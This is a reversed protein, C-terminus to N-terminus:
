RPSPEESRAAGTTEVVTEDGSGHVKGIPRAPTGAVVTRDPVPGKVVSGAGVVCREGITAGPLVISAAGLHCGSGVSVPAETRELAGLSVSWAVTDHTYVQVGASISCYAGISLGGGSGDLLVGPGIWTADGVDVDGFVMASNYISSGEGFGLERARDWRDFVADQFPLDRNWRRRLEELQRRYLDRIAPLLEDGTSM